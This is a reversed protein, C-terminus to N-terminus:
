HSYARAAGSSVAQVDAFRRYNPAVFDDVTKGNADTNLSWTGQEGPPTGLQLQVLRSLPVSSGNTYVTTYYGTFGDGNDEEYNFGLVALTGAPRTYSFSANAPLQANNAPAVMAGPAALTVNAGTSNGPLRLTRSATGGGSHTATVQVTLGVEDPVGNPVSVTVQAPPNANTVGYPGFFVNCNSLTYGPATVDVTFDRLTAASLAVNGGPTNEGDILTFPASGVAKVTNTATEVQVAFLVGPLSNTDLWNPSGSSNYTGNSAQALTNSFTALVPGGFRIRTEHGAPQPFGLGGSVTGSAGGSRNEEVFQRYLKPDARTVGVYLESNYQGGVFDGRVVIDYPATAEVSFRGDADTVLTKGEIEVSIGAVPQENSAVVQGNVSVPGLVPPEGGVGAPQGADGTPQGANSTVGGLGAEGFSDTGGAGGVSEGGRSDGGVSGASGPAGSAAEGAEGGDSRVSRKPDDSGCAAFNAAVLVGLLGARAFTM